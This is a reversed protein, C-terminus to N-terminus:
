IKEIIIDDFSKDQKVKLEKQKLLELIALFNVIIETKSKADKLLNKFELRKNGYLFNKIDLIKQQLSISKEISQKPLRVIPDLRKLVAMLIYKLEELPLIQPPSFVVDQAFPAKERSYTFRGDELHAQIKKSAEVFEKYMKLQRELDNEEDEETAFMPLLARSKMLLLRAAVVLFDSLDEPDKDQMKEIYELYQETVEAIAIQTIELKQQEILQLLLDLPGSFQEIKIKYMRLQYSTILLGYYLFIL